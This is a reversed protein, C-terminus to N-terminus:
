GLPRADLAPGVLGSQYPPDVFAIDFPAEEFPGALFQIAEGVRLRCRGALGLREVNAAAVRATGRDIEVMTARRAGRSLAEIALSGTGAFLDLVSADYLRPEIIAFVSERVRDYTPRVSDSRPAEIKRGSLSGAIVRM